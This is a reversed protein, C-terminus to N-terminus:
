QYPLPLPDVSLSPTLSLYTLFVSLHLPHLLLVLTPVLLVSNRCADARGASMYRLRLCLQKIHEITTDIQQFSLTLTQTHTHHPNPPLVLTPLIGQVHQLVDGKMAYPQYVQQTIPFSVIRNDTKAIVYQLSYNGGSSCPNLLFITRRMAYVM